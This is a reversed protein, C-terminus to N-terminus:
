VVYLFLSQFPYVGEALDRTALVPAVYLCFLPSRASRQKYSAGLCRLAPIAGIQRHVLVRCNKSRLQVPLALFRTGKTKRFLEARFGGVGFQAALSRLGFRAGWDLLRPPAFGFRAGWGLLRPPAFRFGVGWIM